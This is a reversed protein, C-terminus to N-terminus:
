EEPQAKGQGGTQKQRSPPSGARKDTATKKKAARRTGQAPPQAPPQAPSAKARDPKASARRTEQASPKAPGDAPWPSFPFPREDSQFTIYSLIQSVYRSLPAAFRRLQQNLEGTFLKTLFQFVVLLWVLAFAFYLIVGFIIIYLGRMWVAASTANEKVGVAM